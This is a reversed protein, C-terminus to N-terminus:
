VADTAVPDSANVKDWIKAALVRFDAFCDQVLRGHGGIAGDAAKLMFMPKRADQALPMLSRYNRLNALCNSDDESSVETPVEDLKVEDGIVVAQEYVGPIRDFWRQFAKVPRDLRVEHQLIVYGLPMMAAGPVPIDMQQVARRRDQWQQRWMRVTPGLNRLGQLSFLDAALPIVLYDASILAARNIAGLNPGVDILGLKAGQAEGAQKMLRYFSTEVRAAAPDGDNVKPWEQSLKDEFRSLGLHGPLLWLREEIERIEPRRIDGLGHLIPMVAGLITEGGDIPAWLPELEEEKLFASTLNAQPDLDFCITPIDLHAFMHALHYALTTKGVGGKNNFFAITKM